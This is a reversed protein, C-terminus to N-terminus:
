ECLNLALLGSFYHKPMDALLPSDAYQIPLFFNIKKFYKSLCQYYDDDINIIGQLQIPLNEDLGLQDIILLIYYNFEEENEIQYHNQFIIKKDRVFLVNFSEATFDILLEESSLLDSIALLPASQAYIDSQAPLQNEIAKNITFVTNFALNVNKKYHIVSQDGLYQEYTSLNNENFWDDPIFVFNPTHVAVKIGKYNLSLYQDKEFADQLDQTVNECAQKDFLLNVQKSVTNLIAYSFSDNTIKLLLNSQEASDIKFNPDILLLSNNSM